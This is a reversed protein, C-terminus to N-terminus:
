GLHERALLQTPVRDLALRFADRRPRHHEVPALDLEGCSLSLQVTGLGREHPLLRVDPVLLACRQILFPLLERLPAARARALPAARPLTTRRRHAASRARPRAPARTRPAPAHAAAARPAGRPRGRSGPASARTARPTRRRARPSAAGARPRGRCRRRAPAPPSPGGRTRTTSCAARCCTRLRPSRARALLLPRARDDRVPRGQVCNRRAHHERH